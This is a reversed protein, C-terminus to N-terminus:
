LGYKQLKYRLVRESIGLKEAARTQIGGAEQLSKQILHRELEELQRPLSLNSPVSMAASEGVGETLHFPLDRSTILRGRCLVVAREVINELERVNGPYPYRLLLERAEKSVELDEKNNERSFRKIFHDILLPIDERRERLPPLLLSVVNLRFYLDQRFRGERINGELDQHTASIVRVDVQITKNGGVREFTKEQIVRLLKAQLAPSLDGIEDLFLTGGQAQEFKGRHQFLAGTFAGKEHGFLESELLTEPIAACNVTILPGKSRSSQYHIIKAILGKGTGSEGRILVTSQSPAVRAVLSLVEEMKPSQTILGEFSFKEKLERRLQRNERTLLISNEVRELLLLLEELDIPKSLYDFAGLKMAEVAKEVTGYATMMVVWTEPYLAKIEQLLATGDMGPMKHDTLVVDCVNEKLWALAQEGSEAAQVVYGKKQLFGQLLERQNKEDDVVLLRINHIEEM